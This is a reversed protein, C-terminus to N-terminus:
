TSAYSGSSVANTSSSCTISCGTRVSRVFREMVANMNPACRLVTAPQVLLVATRWAPALRAALGMM